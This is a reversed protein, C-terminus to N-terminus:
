HFLILANYRIIIKNENTKITDTDPTLNILIGPAIESPKDIEKEQLDLPEFECTIIVPLFAVM